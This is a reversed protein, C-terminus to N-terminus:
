LALEAAGIEEFNEFARAAVPGFNVLRFPVHIINVFMEAADLQSIGLQAVAVPVHGYLEPEDVTVLVFHYVSLYGEDHCRKAFKFHWTAFRKLHLGISIGRKAYQLDM